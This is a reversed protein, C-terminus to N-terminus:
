LTLIKYGFLQLNKVNPVFISLLHQLNVRVQQHLILVICWYSARRTVFTLVYAIQQEKVVNVAVSYQLM